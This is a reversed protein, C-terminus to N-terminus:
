KGGEKAARAAVLLPHQLEQWCAAECDAQWHSVRGLDNKTLAETCAAQTADLLIRLRAIEASQEAVRALLELERKAINSFLADRRLRKLSRTAPTQTDTNM